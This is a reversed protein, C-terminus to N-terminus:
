FYRPSRVDEKVKYDFDYRLILEHSGTDYQITSQTYSWDFSYGLTFQESINIGALLGLADGTRYMAGLNLKENFIFTATIDGEIPAGSAVKIFATPKLKIGANISLVTGAILFYHRKESALNTTGISSNTKFSNELLKPISVGAYFKDSFYYVGFGFNPLFQSRLDNMLFPDNNDVADLDMFGQSRLNMGGKLGFALNSNKKFRIRYSFDFYLSSTNTPGIKDNILSVGLGINDTLIPTHVTLTQTVPSGTFGVWQSRHLGTISLADRSGAYAPNVSITNYMYHTYMAEQQADAVYSLVVSFILIFIKKM